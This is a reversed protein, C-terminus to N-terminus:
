PLLNDLHKETQLIVTPLFVKLLLKVEIIIINKIM